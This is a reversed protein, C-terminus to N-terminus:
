FRVEKKFKKLRPVSRLEEKNEWVKTVLDNRRSIINTNFNNLCRHFVDSQSIITIQQFFTDFKGHIMIKFNLIGTFYDLCTCFLRSVVMPTSENIAEPPQGTANAVWNRLWERMQPVSIDTRPASLEGEPALVIHHPQPADSESGDTDPM